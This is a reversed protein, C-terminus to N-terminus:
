VYGLDKNKVNKLFFLNDRLGDRNKISLKKSKWEEELNKFEKKVQVLNKKKRNSIEEKKRKGIKLPKLFYGLRGNRGNIGRKTDSVVSKRELSFNKVDVVSKKKRKSRSEKNQMNRGGLKYDIRKWFKDNKNNIVSPNNRLARKRMIEQIERINPEIEIGSNGKFSQSILIHKDGKFLKKKLFFNKFSEEEFKKLKFNFNNFNRQNIESCPRKNNHKRMIELIKKSSELTNKPNIDENKWIELSGKTVRIEENEFKPTEKRASNYKRPYYHLYKDEEIEGYNNRENKYILNRQRKSISIGSELKQRRKKYSTRTIKARREKSLNDIYISLNEMNKKEITREKPSHTQFSEMIRNAKTEGWGSLPERTKEKGENKETKRYIYDIEEDEEGTELLIEHDKSRFIQM